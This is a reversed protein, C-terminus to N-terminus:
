PLAYLDGEEVWGETVKDKYEFQGEVWGPKSSKVPLVDDKVCYAKRRTGVDADDHFHARRAEVVRLATWPHQTDLTFSVGGESRPFGPEVNWCGGHEEDLTITLAGEGTVVLTGGIVESDGPYATAIRAQGGDLIGHIAFICSFRPAELEEDWGSLSYYYGTVARTAPDHAIRLMGYEGSILAPASEPTPEEPAGADAGPVTLVAPEDPEDVTVPGAAGGCCGAFVLLIPLASYLIRRSVITSM